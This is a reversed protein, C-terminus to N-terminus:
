SWPSITPSSTKIFGKRFNWNRFRQIGEEVTCVLDNRSKLGRKTYAVTKALYGFLINSGKRLGQVVVIFWSDQSLPGVVIFKDQYLKLKKWWQGMGKINMGVSNDLIRDM